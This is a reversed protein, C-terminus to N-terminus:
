ERDLRGGLDQIAQSAERIAKAAGFALGDGRARMERSALATIQQAYLQIRKGRSLGGERARQDFEAIGSNFESVTEIEEPIAM